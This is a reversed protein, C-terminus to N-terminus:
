EVKLPACAYQLFGVPEGRSFFQAMHHAEASYASPPHGTFRKFDRIFHAQDYYGCDIAIGAGQVGGNQVLKLAHQFRVIREFSKPSLGVISKFQRELHRASMGVAQAIREVPQLGASAQVLQVATGICQYTKGPSKHGEILGLLFTELIAIQQTPGPAERIREELLRISRGWVDVCDLIKDTFEDIAQRIFRYFGHPHFRVGLIEVRGTPQVVVSNGMQGVILSAPQLETRGQQYHRMFPAALNFVMEVSGDPAIGEPDYDEAEGSLMWYCKVYRSLRISPHTEIYKM